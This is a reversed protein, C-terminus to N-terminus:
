GREEMSRLLAYAHDKSMYRYRDVKTRLENTYYEGLFNYMGTIAADVYRWDEQFSRSCGRLTRLLEEDMKSKVSAYSTGYRTWNEQQLKTPQTFVLQNTMAEQRFPRWWTDHVTFDTNQAGHKKALDNFVDIPSDKNYAM